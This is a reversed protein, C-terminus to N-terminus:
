SFYQGVIVREGHDAYKVLIGSFMSDSYYGDWDAIGYAHDCRMFEELFYVQGKYRFFSASASGEYLADWDLWDFERREEASLEGADIIDRPVNNTRIEM